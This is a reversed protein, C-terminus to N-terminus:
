AFEKVGMQVNFRIPSHRGQKSKDFWSLRIGQGENNILILKPNFVHGVFGKFSKEDM